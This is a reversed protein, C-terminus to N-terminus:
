SPSSVVDGEPCDRPRTSDVFPIIAGGRARVIEGGSLTPVGGVAVSRDFPVVPLPLMTRAVLGVIDEGVSELGDKVPVGVPLAVVPVPFTTRAVLGVIDEGVSELGDKVPVGAPLAVVPVPLTTRAVLGVM